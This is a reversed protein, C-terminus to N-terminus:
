VDANCGAPISLGNTNTDDTPTMCGEHWLFPDVVNDLLFKSHHTVDGSEGSSLYQSPEAWINSWLHAQNTVELSLRTSKWPFRPSKHCTRLFAWNQMNLRNIVKIRPLSLLFAYFLNKKLFWSLWLANVSSQLSDPRTRFKSSNRPLFSTYALDFLGVLLRSCDDISLKNNSKENHSLIDSKRQRWRIEVPTAIIQQLSRYM